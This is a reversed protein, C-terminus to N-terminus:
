KEYYKGNRGNRKYSFKTKKEQNIILNGQIIKKSLEELKQNNKYIQEQTLNIEDINEEENIENFIENHFKIEEELDEKKIGMKEYEETYDQIIDMEKKYEEEEKKKFIKKIQTKKPEFLFNVFEVYNIFGNGEFSARELIDEIKENFNIKLLSLIKKFETVNILGNNDKDFYKFSEIVDKRKEYIEIEDKLPNIKEDLKNKNDYSLIGQINEIEKENLIEKKSTNLKHYDTENDM